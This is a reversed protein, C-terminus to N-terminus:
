SNQKPTLAAVLAEIRQRVTAALEGCRALHGARAGQELQRAAAEGPAAAFTACLGKLTHASRALREADGAALASDMETLYNEAEAVFMQVLEDFLAEDGILALAVARDYVSVNDAATAESQWASPLGSLAKDM